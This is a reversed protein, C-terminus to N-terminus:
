WGSWRRATPLYRATRKRKTACSKPLASLTPAPCTIIAGQGIPSDARTALARGAASAWEAGQKRAHAVLHLHVEKGVCWSVLEFIAREQAEFDEPSVGLRMLSDIVFVDCAYRARAYEFVELVRKVTTKGVVGFLWLWEDLWGVIERIFPEPPRHTNGAQRVARRLFQKPAMELSAACIRAGQEGLGVLVHSLLQSKGADTAGTCLTLEGARFRLRDAMKQWPLRYGPERGDPPWFLAVVDDAFAGARVLEPPDLSRADAVRQGIEDATIGDQLCQNLDKRPLLVRRCRHRGLRSAIEDAAADGEADMDLALYITEFRAMREYEAEIWAQKEGRGGGFPLSLAPSGYDWSAMADIEGETLTVERAEPDIAQWGFLV